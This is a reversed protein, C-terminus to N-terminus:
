EIWGGGVVGDGVYFVAAQGPTVASQPEDFQVEVSDPASLAVVAPAAVHRSRIQVAARVPCAPRAGAIWNVRSATLTTRELQARPGVVVTNSGADLATVYLPISASLRLGKRQGITFHHVGDHRGVVRGHENVITGPRDVGPVRRAIFGAYDDDSVFCIEQSDRKAAVPLNRERALARVQAKTLGGLPFWALALQAQTLSFLFYSQDKGADVGRRLKCGASTREVTAYHGTAVGDAGVGRAREVLADFKLESNCHVCPLPTRGRLYEQVFDAVVQEDFQRELNVIYHPIGIAAAVRRADHLDDLTCCSGFSAQGERQDYLQMSVGIVDHGAEALLAAAVSSDVGGSM